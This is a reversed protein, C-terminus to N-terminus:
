RSAHLRGAARGAAQHPTADTPSELHHHSPLWHPDPPPNPPCRVMKPVRAPGPNKGEGQFGLSHTTGELLCSTPLARGGGRKRSPPRSGTHNEICVIMVAHYLHLAKPKIENCQM